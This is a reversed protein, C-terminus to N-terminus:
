PNYYYKQNEKMTDIIQKADARDEDNLYSPTRHERACKLKLEYLMNKSSEDLDFFRVLNVNHQEFKEDINVAQNNVCFLVFVSNKSKLKIPGTTNFFTRNVEELINLLQARDSTNCDM